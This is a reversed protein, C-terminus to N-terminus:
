VPLSPQTLTSLDNLLYKWVRKLRRLTISIVKMLNIIVSISFDEIQIIKTVNWSNKMKDENIKMKDMMWSIEHLTIEPRYNGTNLSFVSIIRATVVHLNSKMNSPQCYLTTTKETLRIWKLLSKGSCIWCFLLEWLLFSVFNGM